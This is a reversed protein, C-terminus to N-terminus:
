NQGEVVPDLVTELLKAAIVPKLLKGVTVTAFVGNGDHYAVATGYRSGHLM